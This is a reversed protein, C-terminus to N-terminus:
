KGDEDRVYFEIVMQLADWFDSDAVKEALKKVIKMVAYLIAVGDGSIVQELEGDIMEAHLYCCAQNNFEKRQAKELMKDKDM